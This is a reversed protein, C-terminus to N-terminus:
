EKPSWRGRREEMEKGRGERGRDIVRKSWQPSTYRFATPFFQPFKTLRLRIKGDVRGGVVEQM